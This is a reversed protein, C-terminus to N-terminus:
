EGNDQVPPKNDKDGKSQDDAMLVEEADNSLDALKEQDIPVLDTISEEDDDVDLKSKYDSLERSDPDVIGPLDRFDDFDPNEPM